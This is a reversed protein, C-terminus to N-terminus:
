RLRGSPAASSTKWTMESRLSRPESIQGCVQREAFPGFHEGVRAERFGDNVSDGVFRVDDVCALFGPPEAVSELALSAFSCSGGARFDRVRTDGSM